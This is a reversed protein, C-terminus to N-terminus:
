VSSCGAFPDSSGFPTPYRMSVGRHSVLRPMTDVLSQRRDGVRGGATQSEPSPFTPFSLRAAAPPQSPLLERRRSPPLVPRRRQPQPRLSSRCAVAHSLTTHNGECVTQRHRPSLLRPNLTARWVPSSEAEIKGQHTSHVTVCKDNKYRHHKGKAM